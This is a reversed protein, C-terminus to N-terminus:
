DVCGGGGLVVRGEQRRREFADQTFVPMPPVVGGNRAALRRRGLDRSRASREFRLKDTWTLDYCEVSLERAMKRRLNNAFLQPDKRKAESPVYVALHKVHLRNMPQTMLCLIHKVINACSFSPDYGHVPSFPSSVVVPRM